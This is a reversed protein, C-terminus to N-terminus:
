SVLSNKKDGWSGFELMLKKFELNWGGFRGAKPTEFGIKGASGLSEASKERLDYLDNQPNTLLQQPKQQFYPRFRV